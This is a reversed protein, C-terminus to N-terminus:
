ATLEGPTRKNQTLAASTTPVAFIPCKQAAAPCNDDYHLYCPRGIFAPRAIGFIAMIRM